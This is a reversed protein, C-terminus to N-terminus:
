ENDNRLVVKIAEGRHQAALADEIKSFPFSTVLKDFPFKGDRYLSILRPIFEDPDSDGEVIGVVRLGLSMAQILNLSLADAPDAPVGVMGLTGRLGICQVASNLVAPMGSTDFAFDVGGPLIERVQEAVDGAAPDIADTAGLELAVERRSAVPESVVIKECGQVKAALVASLGVPGAGFVALSSGKPCAFTNMIAGAGTQVGCGLPGLLHLDVDDDVKVVNRENALAHSAFSSQGFFNASLAGESSSVPSSGDARVGAYNLLAFQECYAPTSQECSRCSGCSNFTLAVRDGPQVKTVDSGTSVVVGSGEHGLVAPLPIPLVQDRAALDTHCVGVGVIRVLVENGKPEELELSEISFPNGASRAVAATIEM